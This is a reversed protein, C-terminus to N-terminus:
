RLLPYYRYCDQYRSSWSHKDLVSMGSLRCVPNHHNLQVIFMLLLVFVYLCPLSM